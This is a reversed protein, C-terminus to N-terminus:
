DEGWIFVYNESPVCLDFGGWFLTMLIFIFKITCSCHWLHEIDYLVLVGMTSLFITFVAMWEM